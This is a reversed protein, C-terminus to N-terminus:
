FINVLPCLSLQADTHKISHHLPPDCVRCVHRVFVAGGATEEGGRRKKDGEM